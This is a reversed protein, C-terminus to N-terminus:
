KIAEAGRGLLSCKQSLLEFQNVIEVMESSTREFDLMWERNQKKITDIFM